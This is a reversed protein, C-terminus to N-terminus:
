TTSPLAPPITIVAKVTASIETATVFNKIIARDKDNGFHEINVTVRQAATWWVQSAKVAVVLLVPEIFTLAKTFTRNVNDDHEKPLRDTLEM